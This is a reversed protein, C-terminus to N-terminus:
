KTKPTIFGDTINFGNTYCDILINIKEYPILRKIIAQERTLSYTRSTFTKEFNIKAIKCLNLVHYYEVVHLRIEDM